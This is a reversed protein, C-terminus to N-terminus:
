VKRHDPLGNTDFEETQRGVFGTMSVIGPDRGLWSQEPVDKKVLRSVLLLMSRYCEHYGLSDPSQPLIDFSVMNVVEFPM